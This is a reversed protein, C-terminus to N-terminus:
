IIHQNMSIKIIYYQQYKTAMVSDYAYKSHKMNLYNTFINFLQYKM